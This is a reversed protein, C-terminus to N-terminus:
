FSMLSKTYLPRLNCALRETRQLDEVLYKSEESLYQAGRRSRKVQVNPIRM